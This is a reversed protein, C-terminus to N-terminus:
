IGGGSFNAAKNDTVSCGTMSLSGTSNFIAGGASTASNSTFVDDSLKLSGGNRIGGGSSAAKGDKITLGSITANVGSPVQFVRSNSDGSIALTGAGPGEITLNVTIEVEGGTLTIPNTVHGTSMDFEITDGAAENAVTERLSGPGSDNSNEVLDVSLLTREELL